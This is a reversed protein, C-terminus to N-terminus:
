NIFKYSISPKIKENVREILNFSNNDFETTGNIVFRDGLYRCSDIKEYVNINIFDRKIHYIIIKDNIKIITYGIFNFCSRVSADGIITSIKEKNESQIGMLYLKNEANYLSLNEKNIYSYPQHVINKRHKDLYLGDVSLYILSKNSLANRFLEINDFIKKEKLNNCVDNILCIKRDAKEIIKYRCDTSILINRKVRRNNPFINKIIM